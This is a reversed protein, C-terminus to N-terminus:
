LALWPHWQPPLCQWWTQLCILMWIPRIMHVILPLPAGTTWLWIHMAVAAAADFERSFEHKVLGGTDSEYLVGTDEGGSATLKNLGSGFCLSFLGQWHENPTMICDSVPRPLAVSNVPYLAVPGFLYLWTWLFFLRATGHKVIGNQAKFAGRLSFPIKNFRNGELELSTIKCEALCMVSFHEAWIQTPVYKGLLFASFLQPSFSSVVRRGSWRPCFAYKFVKFLLVFYKWLLILQQPPSLSNEIELNFVDVHVLVICTEDLGSM